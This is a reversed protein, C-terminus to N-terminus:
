KKSESDDHTQRYYILPNKVIAGKKSKEEMKEVSDRNGSLEIDAGCLNHFHYVIAVAKGITVKKTKRLNEPVNTYYYYM